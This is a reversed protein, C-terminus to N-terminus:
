ELGALFWWFCLWPQVWAQFLISDMSFGLKFWILIPGSLINGGYGKCNCDLMKKYWTKWFPINPSLNIIAWCMLLAQFFLIVCREWPLVLWQGLGAIQSEKIAKVLLSLCTNLCCTALSITCLLKGVEEPDWSRVWGLYCQLIPGGGDQESGAWSTDLGSHILHSQGRSTWLMGWLARKRHISYSCLFILM